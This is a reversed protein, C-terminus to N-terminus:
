DARRHAGGSEAIFKQRGRGFAIREKAVAAMGLARWRTQGALSSVPRKGAMETDVETGIRDNFNIFITPTAPNSGV